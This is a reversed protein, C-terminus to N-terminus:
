LSPCHLYEDLAKKWAATANFEKVLGQGIKDKIFADMGHQIMYRPHYTPPGLRVFEKCVNALGAANGLTQTLNSALTNKQEVSMKAAMEMKLAPIAQHATKDAVRLVDFRGYLGALAFLIAAEKYQGKNSCVLVAHYLDAPSFNSSLKEVGVCGLEHNSELNGPATYNQIQTSTTPEGAFCNMAICAVFILLEVMPKKNM